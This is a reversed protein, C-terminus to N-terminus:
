TIHIFIILADISFGKNALDIKELILVIFCLRQDIFSCNRYLLGEGLPARAPKLKDQNGLRGDIYHTCYNLIIM